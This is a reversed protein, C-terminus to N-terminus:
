QLAELGEMTGWVELHGVNDGPRRCYGWYYRGTELLAGAFDGAEQLSGWSGGSVVDGLTEGLGKWFGLNGVPDGRGWSKVFEWGM